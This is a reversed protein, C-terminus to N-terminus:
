CAPMDSCCQFTPSTLREIAEEVSLDDEDVALRSEKEGEKEGEKDRRQRQGQREKM